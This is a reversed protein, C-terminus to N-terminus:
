KVQKKLIRGDETEIWKWTRGQADTTTGGRRGREDLGAEKYRRQRKAELQQDIQQQQEPTVGYQFTRLINEREIEIEKDIQDKKESRWGKQEHKYRGAERGEQANQRANEQEDRNYATGARLLELNNSRNTDDILKGGAVRADDGAKMQDLFTGAADPAAAGLGTLFSGPTKGLTSAFSALANGIARRKVVAPDLNEMLQQQWPPKVLPQDSPLTPNNLMNQGPAMGNAGGFLASIFPRVDIPM